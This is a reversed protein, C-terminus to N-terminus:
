LDAGFAPKLRDISVTDAKGRVMVTFYDPYKELVPFPGRYPRTLPKKVTDDRIFVYKAHDLNTDVYSQGHGHRPVVHRDKVLDDIKRFFPHEPFRGVQGERVLLAGPVALEQGLVVEAISSNFEERFSTRIGLLVAPLEKAWDSTRELKAMLSAKFTRHFREVMGNSQAHYATTTQVKSGLLKCIGTWLNSVFQRGRDSTIVIPVGFQSIWNSLFAHSCSEASMDSMPTASPWRTVRDVVTLVYKFGLSDPLPGVIDVHVDTFKGTPTSSFQRVPHKTHKSVKSAQCELCNRVFNSVDKRM